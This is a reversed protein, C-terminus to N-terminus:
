KPQSSFMCVDEASLDISYPSRDSSSICILDSGSSLMLYIEGSTVYGDRPFLNLQSGTTTKIWITQSKTLSDTAMSISSIQGLAVANPNNMRLALSTQGYKKSLIKINGAFVYNGSLLAIMFVNLLKM